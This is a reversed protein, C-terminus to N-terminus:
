AENRNCNEPAAFFNRLEISSSFVDHIDEIDVFYAKLQPDTIFTKRSILIPDPITDVLNSIYALSTTVSNNLIKKYGPFYRMKPEIGDVVCEIAQNLVNAPIRTKAPSEADSSTLGIFDFLKSLLKMDSIIIDHM